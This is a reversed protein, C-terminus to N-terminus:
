RPRGPPISGRRYRAWQEMLSKMASAPPTWKVGRALDLVMRQQEPSLSAFPVDVQSGLQGAVSQANAYLANGFEAFADAEGRERSADSCPFHTLLWGNIEDLREPATARPRLGDEFLVISQVTTARRGFAGAVAKTAQTADSADVEFTKTPTSPPNAFLLDAGLERHLRLSAAYLDAKEFRLRAATVALVNGSMFGVVVLTAAALFSKLVRM